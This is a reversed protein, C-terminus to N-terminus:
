VVLIKNSSFPWCVIISLGMRFHIIECFCYICLPFCKMRWIWEKSRLENERLASSSFKEGSQEDEILNVQIIELPSWDKEKRIENIRLAGVISSQSTAFSRCSVRWHKTVLSWQMSRREHLLLVLRIRFHWSFVSFFFCAAYKFRWPNTIWIRNLLRWFTL